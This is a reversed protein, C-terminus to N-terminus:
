RERVTRVQKALMVVSEQSGWVRAVQRDLTVPYRPITLACNEGLSAIEELYCDTSAKTHTRTTVGRTVLSVRKPLLIL